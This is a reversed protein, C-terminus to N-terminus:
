FKDVLEAIYIITNSNRIVPKIKIMSDFIDHPKTDDDFDFMPVIDHKCVLVYLLKWMNKITYESEDCKSFWGINALIRSGTKFVEANSKKIDTIMADLSDIEDSLPATLIALTTNNHTLNNRTFIKVGPLKLMCIEDAM